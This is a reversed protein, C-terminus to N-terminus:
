DVTPEVTTHISQLISLRVASPHMALNCPLTTSHTAEVTTLIPMTIAPYNISLSASHHSPQSSQLVSPPARPQITPQM